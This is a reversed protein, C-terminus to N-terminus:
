SFQLLPLKVNDPLTGPTPVPWHLTTDPVALMVVAVSGLLVTVPTGEPLLAVKRQVILM